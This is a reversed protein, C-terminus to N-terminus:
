EDCHHIDCVVIGRRLVLEWDDPLASGVKSKSNMADEREMIGRVFYGTFCDSAGASEAVMGGRGTELEIAPEFLLQSKIVCPPRLLALVGKRRAHVILTTDSLPEFTSLNMLVAFQEKISSPLRPGMPPLEGVHLVHDLSTVLLSAEVDDLVLFSVARWPLRV